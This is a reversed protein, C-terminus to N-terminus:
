QIFFYSIASLSSLASFLSRTEALIGFTRMKSNLNSTSCLCEFSLQALEWRLQIASLNGIKLMKLGVLSSLEIWFLKCKLQKIYIYIYKKFSYGLLESYNRGFLAKALQFHNQIKCLKKVVVFVFSWIVLSCIDISYCVFLQLSDSCLQCM